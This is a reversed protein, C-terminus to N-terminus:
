TQTEKEQEIYVSFPKRRIAYYLRGRNSTIGERAKVCISGYSNDIRDPDPRTFVDIVDDYVVTDDDDEAFKITVKLTM